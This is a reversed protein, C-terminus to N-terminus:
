EFHRFVLLGSGLNSAFTAWRAGFCHNAFKEAIARGIGRTGGTVVALKKSMSHLIIKFPNTIIRLFVEFISSHVKFL